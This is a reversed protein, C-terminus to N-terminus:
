CPKTIENEYGVPNINLGDTSDITNLDNIKSESETKNINEGLVELKTEQTIQSELSFSLQPQITAIYVPKNNFEGVNLPMVQTDVNERVLAAYNVNAVRFGAEDMLPLKIDGGISNQLLNANVNFYMNDLTSDLTRLISKSDTKMFYTSKTKLKSGFEVSGNPSIHLAFHDSDLTKMYAGFTKFSKPVFTLRIFNSLYAELGKVTALDYGANKFLTYHEHTKGAAFIEIATKISQKHSSSLKRNLVPAKSYVPEGKGNVNLQFIFYTAGPTAKDNFGEATNMKNTNVTGKFAGGTFTVLDISDAVESLLTSETQGNGDKIFFLVGNSRDTIQIDVGSTLSKPNALITSRLERLKDINDQITHEENEFVNFETIWSTIHINLPVENGNEDLIALPILDEYTYQEGYFGILPGNKLQEKVKGWTTTEKEIDGPVYMEMSDEDRVVVKLKKGSKYENPNLIPRIEDRIFNDFDQRIISFADKGLRFFQRFSRTLYALKNWVESSRVYQIISTPADAADIIDQYEDIENELDRKKSDTFTEDNPQEQPKKKKPTDEDLETETETETTELEIKNGELAAVIIKYKIDIQSREAMDSNTIELLANYVDLAQDKVQDLSKEYAEVYAGKLNNATLLKDLSGYRKGNYTPLCDKAKSLRVKAM